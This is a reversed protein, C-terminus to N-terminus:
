SNQERWAHSRTSPTGVKGESLQPFRMMSGYAQQLLFAGTSISALFVKAPQIAGCVLSAAAAAASNPRRSNLSACEEITGWLATLGAISSFIPQPPSRAFNAGVPIHPLAAGVTERSTKIAIANHHMVVDDDALLSM